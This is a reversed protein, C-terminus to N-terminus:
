EENEKLNKGCHRLSWGAHAAEGSSLSWGGAAAWQNFNRSPQNTAWWHTTLECAYRVLSAYSPTPTAVWCATSRHSAAVRFEDVAAEDSFITAKRQAWFHPANVFEIAHQAVALVVCIPATSCETNRTSTVMRISAGLESRLCALLRDAYDSGDVRIEVAPELGLRHAIWGVIARAQEADNSCLRIVGQGTRISVASSAPLLVNIGRERYFPIAAAACASNFHGIVLKVARSAFEDALQVARAPESADDGLLTSVGRQELFDKAERFITAHATRAGSFTGAIGVRAVQAKGTNSFAGIVTRM